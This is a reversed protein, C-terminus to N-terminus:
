YCPYEGVQWQARQRPKVVHMDWQRIEALDSGSVGRYIDRKNLRLNQGILHVLCENARMNRQIVMEYQTRQYSQDDVLRRNM